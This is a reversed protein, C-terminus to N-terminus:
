KQPAAPSGATVVQFEEESVQRVLISGLKLISGDSYHARVRLRGLESIAFPSLVLPLRAHFIREEESPADHSANAIAGITLDTRLVTMEAVMENKQGYTVRFSIDGEVAGIIEYYMIQIVFKPIVLPVNLTNPFVMDTQYLGMLSIKGGIEVRVDDSFLAFGWAKNRDQNM